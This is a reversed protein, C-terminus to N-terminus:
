RSVHALETQAERLSVEKQLLEEEARKRETIDVVVTAFFAPASGTAPVLTSTVDAWIVNGDKRRYRKEIRYDRRQGDVSEALIAETGARDEEHSVELATLRQLEEETYGLMKQLALNAAIYRGDPTVLAIGASSNEFLKRWREESARLAEEAKRRESNEQTLEANLRGVDAYLRAHDLSIAAQSALLELMALRKTTFVRPALNNELYLVGMLKAQEVLPLCLVSRPRRRGVYEDESFLNQVSADDLIVSEQTRIVYRLLSEPLESPTVVRQRLYVEVGDRGTKAEAEIRHEEGHPLILLGREAGAHELAIVMLTEILKELVIEGSVAHSAKMVTGLDLQEVPTGITTTPRVSAQEALGPYREDLQKVKGLAGWRLYCYRADQLCSHAVKEIGRKLYFQAVLENAIGENQVFGNERASRISEEYLRMADLDRGELRAIEAGVLAARNEFNEPCNEAWIELQRHHAALAAVHQQYEGTVAPDCVAARSLAGYFHYEAVELAARPTWLLPQARLSANVGATYDGGLFRAQLKRLWYLCEVPT